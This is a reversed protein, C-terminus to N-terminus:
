RLINKWLQLRLKTPANMAQFNEEDKVGNEPVSDLQLMAKIESIFELPRVEAAWQIIGNFDKKSLNDNLLQLEFTESFSLIPTSIEKSVKFEDVKSIEKIDHSLRNYKEVLAQLGPGLSEVDKGKNKRIFKSVMDDVAPKHKRHKQLLALSICPNEFMDFFQDFQEDNRFQVLNVDGMLKPHNLLSMCVERSLNKTGWDKLYEAVLMVSESVTHDASADCIKEKNVGDKTGGSNQDEDEQDVVIYTETGTKGHSGKFTLHLTYEKSTRRGEPLKKEEVPKQVDLRLMTEAQKMVSESRIMYMFSPCWVGVQPIDGQSVWSRIREQKSFDKEWVLRGTYMEFVFLEHEELLVGLFKKFAFITYGKRPSIEGIRAKCLSCVKSLSPKGSADM